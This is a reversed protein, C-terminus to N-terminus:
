SVGIVFNWQCQDRLGLLSCIIDVPGILVICGMQVKWKLHFVLALRLGLSEGQARLQRVVIIQLPLAKFMKDRTIDNTSLLYMYNRM